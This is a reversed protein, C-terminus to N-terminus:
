NQGDEHAAEGEELLRAEETRGMTHLLTTLCKYTDTTRLHASGLTQVRATLARKYLSLAEDYHGQEQLLIAFEHLTEALDPHHKVLAQERIHLARQFLQEAQEYKGQERYLVALKNLSYAVQPHEPGSTLEHIRLSRQYLPEMEVYRGQAHYLEALNDLSHAVQPHELGLAQERIRLAQQYLPEAQEYKGQARYLVGLNNYSLAVEPNNSGFAQERIHLARQFLQEAQEYKGQERYFNALRHLPNAIDPHESGLVRERVYLAQQYMLEAQEYKGQEKYLSALKSIPDSTDPHDLGGALRYIHLAQQYLLEAQEYRGQEKYLSALGYLIHVIDPHEPGLMQQCITLARQYLLEAQRYQGRDRLYSATKVILWTLESPVCEWSPVFTMCKLVHKVLRECAYRTEPKSRPFAADLTMIIRQIWRDRERETMTDIQVAQVLRHVSFTKEELDRRILSYGLLVKMLQNLLHPRTVAPDLVPGLLAAGQILLEEPIADPALFASLRLLDAAALNLQEVKKFSLMWTTAVSEPYDDAFSGRDKLMDVRQTHYLSQYGTLGCRTEEIYAGAQDLALPLGGLEESIERAIAVDAADADELSADFVLLKARRLLFLTGVDQPMNEVEIRSARTGTAQARTTLLLHGDSRSPLFEYVQPLDDANDLILLWDTHTMFWRIAAKVTISQDQEYKEPLNLLEAIAIYGSVLSEHTDALTWLVVQYHQRHQYAYEIAIQTKGIGGLGSIAQPQSIATAQGAQLQTRIRSLIEERGTFFSNRPYPINWIRPFSTHPTAVMLRQVDKLAARIGQAVDAFAADRNRWQTIPKGNSPLAQLKEFPANQWDVPRVMIPIVRAENAEHRQLAQQMEIEYCYDSALFDPSVLLLIISATNLHQDLAKTWDTGATIQRKHFAAILGDRQLQSLHKDLEIRLPEDADAYSYFVEIPANM